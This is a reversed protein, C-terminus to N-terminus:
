CISMDTREHIRRYWSHFRYTDSCTTRRTCSLTGVLRFTTAVKNPLHYYTAFYICHMVKCFDVATLIDDAEIAARTHVSWDAKLTLACRAKSSVITQCTRTRSQKSITVCFELMTVCHNLRTAHVNETYDQSVCRTAVM